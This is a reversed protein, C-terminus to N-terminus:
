KRVQKKKEIQTAWNEIVKRERCRSEVERLQPCNEKWQQDLKRQVIEKRRTERASKLMDARDKMEKRKDPSLLKLEDAYQKDEYEILERLKLRRQILRQIKEEKDIEKTRSTSSSSNDHYYAPASAWTNQIHSAVDATKFYRSNVKWREYKADEQMRREAM